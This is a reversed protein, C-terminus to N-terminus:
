NCPKRFLFLHSITFYNIKKVLCLKEKKLIEKIEKLSTIHDPVKEKKGCLRRIKRSILNETPIAVVLDFVPNKKFNKIIEKIKDKSIHEFVDLAFIKNAKVKKYDKIDTHEPTVDFGVVNYGQKKLKNKLWGAGCGFDLISDKKKLNLMRIALNTKAKFFVRVLPNKNFYTANLEDEM